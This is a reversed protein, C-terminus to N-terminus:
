LNPWRLKRLRQLNNKQPKILSWWVRLDKWKVENLYKPWNSFNIIIFLILILPKFPNPPPFFIYKMELLAYLLRRKETNCERETLATAQLEQHTDSTAADTQREAVERKPVLNLLFLAPGRCERQMHEWKSETSDAEAQARDTSGQSIRFGSILTYGKLSTMRFFFLACM